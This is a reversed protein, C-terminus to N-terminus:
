KIRLNAAPESVANRCHHVITSEFTEVGAMLEFEVRLFLVPISHAEIEASWKAADKETIVILEAHARRAREFIAIIDDKKFAHHDPFAVSEVVNAGCKKIEEFFRAPQAIGCMAFVNKENIFSLPVHEGTTLNEVFKPALSATFLIASSENSTRHFLKELKDSASNKANSFIVVDARSVSGFPERFPGAPLMWQNDFFSPADILVINLDRHLKRHQFGDDVIVADIQFNEGAYKAGSFKKEDAIVVARQLRKALLMAEDGGVEVTARIKEGDSVVVTGRQKRGYGRTVIAPRLHNNLMLRAIYEVAPTKGTGGVTLNGVSIVPVNLKVFSLLNHDYLLNRLYVALRFLLSFPLLWVTLWRKNFIHM